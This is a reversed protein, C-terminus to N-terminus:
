VWFVWIVLRKEEKLLEILREKNQIFKDVESNKKDLYEVISNQVDLPPVPIKLKKIVDQSINPQGGGYSLNVINRRNAIFWYLTFKNTLVKSKSLACCAQNTCGEINIVSAKGITAGYMAILLTGKPYIKLVSHKKFAEETIKNKCNELVGDNLDGTNIWNITGDIYFKTNGSEPTTGSGILNFAHAIKWLQWGDPLSQVYDYSVPYYKKYPQLNTM